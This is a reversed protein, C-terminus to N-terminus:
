RWDPLIKDRDGKTSSSSIAIFHTVAYKIIPGKGNEAPLLNCCGHPFYWPPKWESYTESQITGKNRCPAQLSLLNSEPASHIVNLKWLDDWLMVGQMSYIILSGAQYHTKWTTHSTTNVSLQALSLDQHEKWPYITNSEWPDVPPHQSKSRTQPCLGRNCLHSVTKIGVFWPLLQYIMWSSSSEKLNYICKSSAYEKHNGPPCIAKRSNRFDSYLSSFM